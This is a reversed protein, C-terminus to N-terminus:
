REGATVCGLPQKVVDDRIRVGCRRRDSDHPKAPGALRSQELREGHGVGFSPEVDTAACSRRVCRGQWVCDRRAIDEKDVVRLTEIGLCQLGQDAESFLSRCRAAAQDHRMARPWPRLRQSREVGYERPVSREDHEAMEITRCDGFPSCREKSRQGVRRQEVDEVVPGTPQRGVDVAQQRV